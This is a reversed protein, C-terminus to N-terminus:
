AAKSGSPKNDDRADILVISDDEERKLRKLIRRVKALEQASFYIIIKVSRSAGSAKEYIATQNKLNRELATNSALKMEVLSKDKAGRSVKVDAPGRGDNAESTVDMSTGYWTLKYAVHLDSERKIPRRKLYFMRHGGMNAVVDKLFVARKHAADYSNAEQEYFATNRELLGVLARIQQVYLQESEQVRAGSVKTAQPGRNEKDRIFYDILQPFQRITQAIAPQKEAKKGRRKKRKPLLSRFYNNVHERLEDNPIADPIRDFEEYLDSKNIWTDDKTLLDRPTLLVHKGNHVPLDGTAPLWRQTSYSFRVKKVAIKRRLSQEIHRKAFASTYERLFEHILNNTFDSINDRGVGDSILCLKELHIGKTIKAQRAGHFILHLNGHAERPFKEGLGRGRNGTKSFGLWNEGIEPFQYWARILVKNLTQKRAKHHLFEM